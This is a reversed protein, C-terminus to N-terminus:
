LLTDNEIQSVGLIDACTLQQAVNQPVIAVSPNTQYDEWVPQAGWFRTQKLSEAVWLEKAKVESIVVPAREEWLATLQMSIQSEKIQSLTYKPTTQSYHWVLICLSILLIVIWEIM